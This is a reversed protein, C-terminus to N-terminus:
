KPDKKKLHIVELAEMAELVSEITSISLRIKAPMAESILLCVTRRNLNSSLLKRIGIVTGKIEEEIKALIEPDLKTKM